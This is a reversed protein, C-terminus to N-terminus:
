LTIYVDGEDETEINVRIEVNAKFGKEQLYEKLSNACKLSKCSLKGDYDDLAKGLDEFTNKGETKIGNKIVTRASETATEGVHETEEKVDEKEQDQSVDEKVTEKDESVEKKEEKVETKGTYSKVPAAGANCGPSVKGGNSDLYISGYEKPPDPDYYYLSIMGNSWLDCHGTPFQEIFADYASNAFDGSAKFGDIFANVEKETPMEKNETTAAATSALLAFCLLIGLTKVLKMKEEGRLLIMSYVTHLSGDSRFYGPIGVFRIELVKRCTKRRSFSFCCPSVRYVTYDLQDLEYRVSQQTTFM